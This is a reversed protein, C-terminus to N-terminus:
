TNTRTRAPNEEVLGGLGVFRPMVRTGTEGVDIRSRGPVDVDWGATGPEVRGGDPTIGIESAAAHARGVAGEDHRLGGVVGDEVVRRAGQVGVQRGRHRVVDIEDQDVGQGTGPALAGPRARALHLSGEVAHARQRSSAQGLQARNPM